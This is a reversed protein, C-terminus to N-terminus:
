ELVLYDTYSSDTPILNAMKGFEGNDNLSRLFDLAEHSTKTTDNGAVPFYFDRTIKSDFEIVYIYSGIEDGWNCFNEIRFLRSNKSM